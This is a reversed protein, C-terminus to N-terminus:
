SLIMKFNLLLFKIKMMTLIKRFRKVFPSFNSNELVSKYITVKKLSLNPYIQYPVKFFKPKKHFLATQTDDCAFNQFNIWEGCFNQFNCLAGGRM